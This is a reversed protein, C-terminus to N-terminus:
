GITASDSGKVEPLGFAAREQRLYEKMDAERSSLMVIHWSENGSQKRHDLQSLRRIERGFDDIMEHMRAVSAPSLHVIHFGWADNKAQEGTLNSFLTRAYRSFSATMPGNPRLRVQESVLVRVRNGPYVKIFGLKELAMMDLFMRPADFSMEQMIEEPTWGQALLVLILGYEPNKALEREQYETLVEAKTSIRQAAIEYFETLSLGLVSCLNEMVQITLRRGNLYRKITAESVNLKEAVERYTLGKEHFMRKFLDITLPIDTLTSGTRTM